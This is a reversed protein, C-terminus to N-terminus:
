RAIVTHRTIVPTDEQPPMVQIDMQFLHPVPTPRQQYHVQWTQRGFSFKRTLGSTGIPTEPLAVLAQQAVWDGYIRLQLAQQHNLISGLGQILASLAIAAVALAVMVEILTFGDTQKM